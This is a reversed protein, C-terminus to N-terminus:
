LYRDDGNDDNSEILKRLVEITAGFDPSVKETETEKEVFLDINGIHFGSVAPMSLWHSM